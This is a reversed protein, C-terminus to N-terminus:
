GKPGEYNFLDEFRYKKERCCANLVELIKMQVRLKIRRGKRAKAVNRFTLQGKSYDVLFTDTMAYDSMIKDLPQIGKQMDQEKMEGPEPVNETM